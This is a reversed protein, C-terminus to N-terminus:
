PGGSDDRPSRPDDEDPADDLAVDDDLVMEDEIEASTVESSSEDGEANSSSANQRNPRTSPRSFAHSPVPQDLIEWQSWFHMRDRWGRVGDEEKREQTPRKPLDVDEPKIAFPPERKLLEWLRQEELLSAQIDFAETYEAHAKELAERDRIKKRMRQKHNRPNAFESDSPDVPGNYELEVGQLYESALDRAAIEMEVDENECELESGSQSDKDTSGPSSVINSPSAALSLASHNSEGDFRAAPQNPIRDKNLSEEVEDYDMPSQDLATSSTRRMIELNCRRPCEKWFKNSNVQLGIIKAAAEVDAPKVIDFRNFSRPDM